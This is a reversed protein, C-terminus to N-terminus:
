EKGEPAQAAATAASIAAILKDIARQAEIDVCQARATELWPVAAVVAATPFRLARGAALQEFISSATASMADAKMRTGHQATRARVWAAAKASITLNRPTPGGGHDGGRNNIM